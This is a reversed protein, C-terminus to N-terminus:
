APEWLRGTLVRVPKVRWEGALRWLEAEARPESLDCVAMVEPTAMRGFRSLADEVTPPAGGVRTAGAAEATARYDGYGARGFVWGDEGFRFTPFPVRDPRPSGPPTARTAELDAGFAEVIAHSGLDIRLRKVDLGVERGVEVLAETTDLKRRFCLIGERVARLYGTAAEPGQEAAAKVAMCAPYTTRIPGESWLRPDLPMGSDAAADLWHTLLSAYSDEHGSEYDRALGGMVWEFSLDAGFEVMLKRLAPEALWSAVCAPDTFLRVRVSM